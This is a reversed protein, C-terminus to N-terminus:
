LIVYLDSELNEAEDDFLREFGMERCMFRNGNIIVVDGVSVATHTRGEPLPQLADWIEGAYQNTQAFVAECIAHYDDLFKEGGVQIEKSVAGGATFRGEAIESQYHALHAPSTPAVINWKVQVTHLIENNM